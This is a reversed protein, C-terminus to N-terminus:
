RRRPACVVMDFGTPIGDFDYETEPHCQPPIRQCGAVTCAIQGSDSVGRHRAPKKKASLVLTDGSRTGAQVSPTVVALATAAVIALSLRILMHVRLFREDDHFGAAVGSPELALGAIKV